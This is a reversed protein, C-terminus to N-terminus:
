RSLAPRPGGVRHRVRRRKDLADVLLVVPMSALAVAWGWLPPNAQKLQRAIPDVFVVTLAFALEIVGTYILLRNSTWGLQGPRRTSSRCASANAKQGFVVTLFAAGSAAALGHANPWPQNPGWGEAWMSVIFALMSMTAITPGLLGFARRVVTANMLRGAVPPGEILHTSPPEAGLAVASLTDTGIDLALIQLVGLALPFRGGSLVWVLFPTLEAVNDTLHYTLFRRLNVYTARGQEIGAVISAFHDDLLVLDAAERAVDTGSLGMAIGIDAEHLAPADNVGDGTMAVVHGRARLARAIRLKDEPSVRAIVVGDHDLLAGLEALDNPLEAGILVPDDPWRLGVETAIAAATEPHDGTVMAIKVRASRCAAIAAHVDPRPPDQLGLLGLLHLDREADEADTVAVGLHRRHAVALVRLGRTTMAGVAADAGDIVACLPLLQDPAGKVVVEGDIVVSMRRRRPDFPFRASEPRQTRDSETDIGLRHAFADVAAEMPDGHALWKGEKEFAYGTACRAGALALAAIVQRDGTTAVDATPGYGLGNVVAEGAPTWAAVVTMQNMTLTGTKDTCIFTTSGLTEVAELTRVLVNRKAMQEAGWALALTVTPLLAEPVLAVTVGIAFVFGDKASNGLLMSVGFFLGGLGLAMFAVMRVVVALGLTLPTKPKATATTLQAIAALRSAAGVAMVVAEATGEVVFTGAHMTDGVTITTPTSEGTLLSTDLLLGNALVTEADAPIRDGGEVLLRDGLVVDAADVTQARGDRRVTVRTPLLARLREAAKDARNEQVFSFVANILIVGFIAIGLQPMGGIVALVGAVWLMLAFFHVLEGVFRRLLSPRGVTPLLNPGDRERRLTAEVSSLGNDM